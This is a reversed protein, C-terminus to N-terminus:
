SFLRVILKRGFAGKLNKFLLAGNGILMLVLSSMYFGWLVYMKLTFSQSQGFLLTNTLLIIQIIRMHILLIVFIFILLAAGVICAWSYIKLVRRESNSYISIFSDFDAKSVIGFLSKLSLSIYRLSHSLLNPFRLVSQLIFYGDTRIFPSLTVLSSLVLFFSLDAWLYSWVPFLLYMITFVGAIILTTLPGALFVHINERINCSQINRIKAYFFPIGFHFELGVDGVDCGYAYATSMHAFEHFFEAVFLIIILLIFPEVPTNYDFMLFADNFINKLNLAFLLTIFLCFIPAFIFFKKGYVHRLIGCVKRSIKSNSKLLPIQISYPESMRLNNEVKINEIFGNRALVNLFQHLNIGSFHKNIIIDIEEVTKSGDLLEIVNKGYEHLKLCRSNRPNTLIFFRGREDEKLFTIKADPIIKPKFSSPINLDQL